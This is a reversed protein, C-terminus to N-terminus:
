ACNDGYPMVRRATFRYILLFAVGAAGILRIIGVTLTVEKESTIWNCQWGRMEASAVQWDPTEGSHFSRLLIYLAERALAPAIIIRPDLAEEIEIFPRRV